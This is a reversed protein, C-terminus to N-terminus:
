AILENTDINKEKFEKSHNKQNSAKSEKSLVNEDEFYIYEVIPQLVSSKDKSYFNLLEIKSRTMDMDFYSLQSKSKHIGREIVEKLTINPEKHQNPNSEIIKLMLNAINLEYNADFIHKKYLRNNFVKLFRKNKFTILNNEFFQKKQKLADLNLNLYNYKEALYQLRYLYGLANKYDM